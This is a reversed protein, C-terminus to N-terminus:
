IIAAVLEAECAAFAQAIAHIEDISWADGDRFLRDRGTGDSGPRAHLLNNRSRVLGQFRMAAALPAPQNRVLAALTDAVRGATRDDLEALIGAKLRDCALVATWELRAFAFVAQGLAEAYDPDLFPLAENRRPRGDARSM